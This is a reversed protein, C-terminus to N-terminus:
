RKRGLVEAIDVSHRFTSEMSRRQSLEIDGMANVDTSIRRRTLGNGNTVEPNTPGDQVDNMVRPRDLLAQIDDERQIEASTQTDSGMRVEVDHGEMENRVTEEFRLRIIPDKELQQFVDTDTPWFTKRLGTVAIDYLILASLILLTNLWWSLDRGYHLVFNVFVPYQLYVSDNRPKYIESLVITWLFWGGISVVMGILSVYTKKSM